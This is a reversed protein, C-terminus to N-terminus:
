LSWSSYLYYVVFFFLKMGVTGRGDIYLCDAPLREGQKLLIIDGVLLDNSSIETEHGDRIVEVAKNEKQKNLASFQQEKSYNNGAGVFVVLVVAVM